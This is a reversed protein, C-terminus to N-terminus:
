LLVLTGVEVNEMLWTLNQQSIRVCGSTTKDDRSIAKEEMPVMEDIEYLDSHIFYDEFVVLYGFFKVRAHNPYYASVYEEESKQEIHFIGEPTPTVEGGFICPFSLEKEFVTYANSNYTRRILLDDYLRGNSCKKYIELECKGRNLKILYPLEAGPIEKKLILIQTTSM